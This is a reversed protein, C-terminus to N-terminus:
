GRLPKFARSWHNEPFGPICWLQSLPEIARAAAAAGRAAAEGGFQKIVCAAVRQGVPGMGLVGFRM